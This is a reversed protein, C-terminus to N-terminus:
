EIDNYALVELRRIKIPPESQGEKMVKWLSPRAIMPRKRDLPKRGIIKADHVMFRWKGGRRNFHDVRGHLLAAPAAVSSKSRAERNMQMERQDRQTQEVAKGFSQLIQNIMPQDLAIKRNSLFTDEEGERNDEDREETDSEDCLAQHLALGISGHCSIDNIVNARNPLPVQEWVVKRSPTREDHKEGKEADM